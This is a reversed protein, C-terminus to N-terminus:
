RDKRERYLKRLYNARELNMAQGDLNKKTRYQLCGPLSNVFLAVFGIQVRPLIDMEIGLRDESLLSLMEEATLLRANELVGRARWVKDEIFISSEKKLIKRAQMEHEVLQKAVAELHTLSDEESKGLTIQNSIQFINGYAKSGEGFIGRVALGLPSLAALVSQTQNTLALAPLHVMVSVRLGTGVNTPCSTLYGFKDKYAVNLCSDLHDDIVGALELAESLRDGPLLVQIRLHDEENVMLAVKHSESLVIGRGVSRDAFLPSILHKEVMVKKEVPSLESLPIYILKEDELTFNRFCDAVKKEVDKAEAENMVQPFPIDALNRALRVRTSLIIPLQEDKMWYSDTALLDYNSV